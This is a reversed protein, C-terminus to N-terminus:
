LSEPDDNVPELYDLWIDQSRHSYRMLLRQNVAVNTSPLQWADWLAQVISEGDTPNATFTKSAWPVESSSILPVGQSVLDAAVINFTESFSVQMGLDMAACTKLFEERPAWEHNVLVHGKDELHKFLATLNRLVPGGNMEVRGANVHFRLRLGLQDAFEIAAIAQALHNKM